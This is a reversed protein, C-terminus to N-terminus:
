DRGLTARHVAMGALMAVVFLGAQWLGTSLAAFAPGPCFGVLGWGLGFVAAGALLAPDIDRRTPLELTDALLARGRRRAWAIAPAAVALAGAMVCALTPDWDGAVDLFGLVKAPNIMGSVALGAGFLAGILLAAVTRPM